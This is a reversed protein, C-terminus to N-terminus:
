QKEKKLYKWPLLRRELISILAVLLLSVIIILFIAAFMKDYSYSNKARIMYVGLGRTGGLWEAIIAGVFSYSISIKLGSMLGELSYPLKVTKFIQWKTAGMAKLLNISDEDAM